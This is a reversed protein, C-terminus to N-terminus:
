RGAARTAQHVLLGLGIALVIGLVAQVHVANVPTRHTPHVAGFWDRSCTREPRALLDVADLRERGRERERALQQPDRVDRAPRRDGPLVENPWGAGRTATTSATPVRGADPRPRLVGDRRLLLLRLVARDARCSLIVARRSRGGQSAPRRASRRRRRSASSRSCASCWARSRRCSTATARSSSRWRTGPRRRQHDAAALRRPLDRDRDAGLVVGTRTSIAIGRYTLFWVVLAACCRSRCGCCTTRHLGDARHHLVRRLLRVRRVAGGSRDARRAHVGLGDALRRVRRSRARGVHVHRRGVALHRGLQSM